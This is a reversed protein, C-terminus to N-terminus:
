VRSAANAAAAEYWSPKCKRIRVLDGNERFEQYLGKKLCEAKGKAEMHRKVSDLRCLGSNCNMCRYKDKGAFVHVNRHRNLERRLNYRYTCGDFPCQFQGQGDKRYKNVSSNSKLVSKSVSPSTSSSSTNSYVSDSSNRRASPSRLSRRKSGSGSSSPAKHDVPLPAALMSPDFVGYDYETMFYQPMQMPLTPDMFGNNMMHVQGQGDVLPSEELTQTPINSYHINPVPVLASGDFRIMTGDPLMLDPTYAPPPAHMMGHDAEHLGHSPSSVRLADAFMSQILGQQEDDSEAGGGNISFTSNRRTGPTSFYSSDVLSEQSGNLMLATPDICSMSAGSSSRSMAAGQLMSYPSLNQHVAMNYGIPSPELMHMTNSQPDIDSPYELPHCASAVSALSTTSSSASPSLSTLSPPASSSLLSSEEEDSHRNAPFNIAHPHQQQQQGDQSTAIASSGDLSPWNPLSPTSKTM